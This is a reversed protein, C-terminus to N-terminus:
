AGAYDKRFVNPDNNQQISAKKWVAEVIEDSFDAM